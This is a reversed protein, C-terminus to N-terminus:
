QYAKHGRLINADVKGDPWMILPAPTFWQQILEPETWGRWLAARSVKTHRAFALDLAHDFISQDLPM